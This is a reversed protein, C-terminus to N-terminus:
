NFDFLLYVANDKNKEMYKDYYEMIFEKLVNLRIEKNDMDGNTLINMSKAITTNGMINGLVIVYDDVERLINTKFIVNYQCAELEYYALEEPDESTFIIKENLKLKDGLKALEDFDTRVLYSM